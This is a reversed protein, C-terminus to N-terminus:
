RSPSSDKSSAAAESFFWKVKRFNQVNKPCVACSEQMCALVGADYVPGLLSTDAEPSATPSSFHFRPAKVLRSQANRGLSTTRPELDINPLRELQNSASALLAKPGMGARM